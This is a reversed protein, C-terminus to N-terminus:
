RNAFHKELDDVFVDCTVSVHELMRQKSVGTKVATPLVLELVNIAKDFRQKYNLAM